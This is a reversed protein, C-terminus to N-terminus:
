TSLSGPRTIRKEKPGRNIRQIVKVLLFIILGTGLIAVVLAAGESGSCSISCSLAALVYLLGAAVIVSLAILAIKEGQTSDKYQRRLEHLKAKLKQKLNKNLYSPHFIKSLLSKIPHLSPKTTFTSISNGTAAYVNNQNNTQSSFFNNGVYVILFFTSVALILDSSKQVLYFKKYRHGRKKSPYVAIGALLIFCTTYASLVHIKINLLGLLDGLMWGLFNLLIYIGIIIFRTAWIHHSAWISIKRM